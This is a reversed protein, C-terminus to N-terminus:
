RAEGSSNLYEEGAASYGSGDVGFEVRRRDADGFGRLVGSKERWWRHGGEGGVGDVVEDVFEGEVGTVDAALDGVGVVAEASLVVDTEDGDYAGVAQESGVEEFEAGFELRFIM